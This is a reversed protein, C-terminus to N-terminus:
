PRVPGFIEEILDHYNEAGLLEKIKATKLLRENRDAPSPGQLASIEKLLKFAMDAVDRSIHGEIVGSNLTQYRLDSILQYEAFRQDGLGQKLEEDRKARLQQGLIARQRSDKERALEDNMAQYSNRILDFESQTANFGYLVMTRLYDTVSDFKPNEEIMSAYQHRGKYTALDLDLLEKLVAAEETSIRQKIVEEEPRALWFPAHTTWFNTVVLSTKQRARFMRDVRAVIIDEVTERPCDRALLNDRLKFFDNNEITSWLSVNSKRKAAAVM